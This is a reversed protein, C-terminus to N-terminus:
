EVVATPRPLKESDCRTAATEPPANEAPLNTKHTEKHANRQRALYLSSEFRPHVIQTRRKWAQAPRQRFLPMHRQLKQTLCVLSTVGANDFPQMSDTRLRNIDLEILRSQKLPDPDKM